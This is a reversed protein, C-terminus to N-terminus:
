QRDKGTYFCGCDVVWKLAMVQEIEGLQLCMDEFEAQYEIEDPEFDLMDSCFEIDRMLQAHIQVLTRDDTLKPVIIAM